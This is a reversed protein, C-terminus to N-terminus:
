QLFEGDDLFPDQRKRGGGRRLPGPKSAARSTTKMPAAADGDPGNGRKDAMFVQVGATRTMSSFPCNTMGMRDPWIPRALSHPRCNAAAMFPCATMVVAVSTLAKNATSSHAALNPRRRDESPPWPRQKPGGSLPLAPKYLSKGTSPGKGGPKTTVVSQSVPNITVVLAATDTKGEATM